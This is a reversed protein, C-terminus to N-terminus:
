CRKCKKGDLTRWEEGAYNAQVKYRFVWGRAHKRGGDGRMIKHVDQRHCGAADAAEQASTFTRWNEWPGKTPSISFFGGVGNRVREKGQIRKKSKDKNSDRGLDSFAHKINESATVWMINAASNNSLLPFSLLTGIPVVTLIFTTTRIGEYM